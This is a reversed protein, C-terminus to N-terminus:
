REAEEELDEPLLGLPLDVVVREASLEVITHPLIPLLWEQNRGNPGRWRVEYLDQAGNTTVGVITGLAQRAGNHDREVPLGIADVLYFEDDALPPLEDRQVKVTYGRLADAADRGRVGELEVRLRNAKGPVVAVSDVVCRREPEGERCLILTRGAEVATSESAHLHIRVTGRVGHSGAVYGVELSDTQPSSDSPQTM